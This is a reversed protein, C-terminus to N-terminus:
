CTLPKIIQPVGCVLRSSFVFRWGYSPWEHTHYFSCHTIHSEKTGDLPDVLWSYVYDKREDYSLLKNEESVIPFQIDLAELGACIIDNGTKDAITLPSEDGKTEVQFDDKGYINMIADGAKQAIKVVEAALGKLDM